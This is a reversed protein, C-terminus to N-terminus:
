VRCASCTQSRPYSLCHVAYPQTSGRFRRDDLYPTSRVFYSTCLTGSSFSEMEPRGHVSYRPRFNGGFVCSGRIRNPAVTKALAAALGPARDSLVLQCNHDARCVHCLESISHLVRATSKQQGKRMEGRESEKGEDLYPTRSVSYRAKFSTDSPRHKHVM